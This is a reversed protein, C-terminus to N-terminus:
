RLLPALAKDIETRYDDFMDLRDNPVDYKIKVLKDFLGLKTIKSIPVQKAVVERCQHYLYLIIEMMKMQKALPVYTDEKHFANQQLFGVRIVRAIEIVLKQDDPLVDAGILKVIEMLSNEELLISCLEDRYNMFEPGANDYYWASLDNVYESYSTNWNIAPYHRAYALSKDLAWFCRTFRKTNQTVPESFDSGQPSVAGIITISGETGNLNKVYGAREYFESLRSPLYAPFGEDAPMEELRGSIERLAEAWRSTSDAMIATHYGMDRYYEALTIGTYISAERAAVPMNSTNAILVTRDTLPKGTRPDSIEGFKEHTWDGTAAVVDHHSMLLINRSEDRGPIKYVWCDESFYKIEAREHLLPFLEKVAARLKAFETDDYIERSSVTQCKIMKMLREGNEIDEQETTYVPKEGIPEAKKAALAARILLICIFIVLVALVALLIYLGM